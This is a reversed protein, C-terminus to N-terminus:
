FDLEFSLEEDTVSSTFVLTGEEADAAVEYALQASCSGGEEIAEAGQLFGAYYPTCVTDNIILKFSMDDLLLVESTSNTYTYDIVVVKEPNSQNNEDREDTVSVASIKITGIEAGDAGTIVCDKNLPATETGALDPVELDTTGEGQIENLPTQQIENLYEQNEEDTPVTEEEKPVEESNDTQETTDPSGNEKDKSSCGYMTFSVLGLLTLILIIHKHKM